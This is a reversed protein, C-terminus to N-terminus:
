IKKNPTSNKVNATTILLLVYALIMILIEYCVCIARICTLWRLSASGTFFWLM